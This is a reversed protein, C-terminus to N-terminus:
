ADELGAEDIDAQELKDGFYVPALRDGKYPVWGDPHKVDDIGIHKMKKNKRFYAGDKEYYDYRPMISSRKNKKDTGDVRKEDRVNKSESM